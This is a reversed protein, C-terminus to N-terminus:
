ELAVPGSGGRIINGSIVKYYYDLGILVGVKWVQSNDFSDALSFGQLQSFKSVNVRPLIPTCIVYNKLTPISVLDGGEAELDFLVVNRFSESGFNNLNIAKAKQLKLKLRNMLDKIVYSKQRGSDFLITAKAREGNEGKM